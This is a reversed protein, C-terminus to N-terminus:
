TSRRRRGARSATCRRVQRCIPKRPTAQPRRRRKRGRGSAAKGARRARPRGVRLQLGRGGAGGGSACCTRALTKVCRQRLSKVVTDLATTDASRQAQSRSVGREGVAAPAGSRNRYRRRERRAAARDGRLGNRWYGAAARLDRVDLESPQDSWRCAASSASAVARGRREGGRSRRLQLTALQKHVDALRTETQGALWFGGGALALM